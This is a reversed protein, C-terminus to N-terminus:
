TLAPMRAVAGQLDSGNPHTYQQTTQVSKHGLLTQVTRLDSVRLLRTAFTHRLMHPTLSRALRKLALDKIRREITRISPPKRNGRPALAYHAPALELPARKSDWTDQIRQRLDPTLPIERARHRKAMDPTIKLHTAATGAIILDIWAVKVTEGVRLGAQLMLHYALPFPHPLANAHPTLTALEQDTLTRLPM